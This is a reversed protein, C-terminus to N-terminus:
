RRGPNHGPPSAQNTVFELIVDESTINENLNADLDEMADASTEAAVGTSRDKGVIYGLRDFLPFQKNRLGERQM